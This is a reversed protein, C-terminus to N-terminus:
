CRMVSIGIADPPAPQPLACARSTVAPMLPNGRADGVPDFLGARFRNMQEWTRRVGESPPLHRNTSGTLSKEVYSYAVAREEKGTQSRADEVAHQKDLAIAIEMSTAGQRGMLCITTTIGALATIMLKRKELMAQLVGQDGFTTGDAYIAAIVMGQPYIVGKGYNAPVVLYKATFTRSDGPNMPQEGRMRYDDILTGVSSSFRGDNSFVAYATLQAPYWNLYSRDPQQLVPTLTRKATWTLSNSGGNLRAIMKGDSITNGDWKGTYTATLGVLPGGTDKRLIQIHPSNM